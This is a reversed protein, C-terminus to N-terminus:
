RRIINKGTITVNTAKGVGTFPQPCSSLNRTDCLALEYSEVGSELDEFGSWRASIDGEGNLYDVDSVIGDIVTGSMPPTDDVIVGDSSLSTTVGASNTASVTIYYKQGNSIPQTLVKRVFTSEPKLPTKEVVDCAGSSLGACWTVKIVDSELDEFGHWHAAIYTRSEQVDIDEGEKTGDLITGGSVPGILILFLTYLSIHLVCLM